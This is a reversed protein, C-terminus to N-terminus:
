KLTLFERLCYGEVGGFSVKCWRDSEELIEVESYCYMVTLTKSKLSPKNRLRLAAANVYAKLSEM